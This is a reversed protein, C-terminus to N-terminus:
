GAARSDELPALGAISAEKALRTNDEAALRDITRRIEEFEIPPISLFAEVVTPDFQTGACRAIEQRAFDMSEAKRYPRDSTIADLADVVAFIRAGLCIDEGKLAQPYGRGDWREQHHLVVLRAQELFPINRLLFYGYEAHRKMEEWEEPTLKGPKLLIADRVGIKGIDHLLAGKEIDLLEQGTVGLSEAVRRTYWAVRRSHWQTETDRYDLASVLGELLNTTREQVLRELGQNLAHLQANKSHVMRTLEANRLKLDAHECAERVLALFQPPDWPKSLYRHIEGRNIADVAVGFEEVATLLIRFSDPSVERARHLFAAGSMVPMRYDSCVVHFPGANALAELGEEPGLATVVEYGEPEFTRRLASLVFQEDDVFLLRHVIIRGAQATHRETPVQPEFKLRGRLDPSNHM